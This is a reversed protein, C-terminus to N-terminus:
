NFCCFINFVHPAFGSFRQFVFIRIQFGRIHGINLIRLKRFISETSLVETDYKSILRVAKNQRIQVQKINCTFNTALKM